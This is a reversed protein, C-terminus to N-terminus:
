SQPKRARRTAVNRRKPASGPTATDDEAVVEAEVVVDNAPTSAAPTASEVRATVRVPDEPNMDGDVWYMIELGPRHIKKNGYNKNRYFGNWKLKVVPYIFPGERNMVEALMLSCAEVFGMSSGTFRHKADGDFELAIFPFDYAMKYEISKGNKDLGLDPLDCVDPLDDMLSRLAGHPKNNKFAQYGHRARTLDVVFTEDDGVFNHVRNGEADDKSAGRVWRGANEGEDSQLMRLLPAGTRVETKIDKNQKLRALFNEGVNAALVNKAAMLANENTM